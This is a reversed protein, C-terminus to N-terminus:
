RISVVYYRPPYDVQRYTPMLVSNTFEDPVFDFVTHPSTTQSLLQTIPIPEASLPVPPAPRQRIPLRCDGTSPDYSALCLDILEWDIVCTDPFIYNLTLLDFFPHALSSYFCSVIMVGKLSFLSFSARRM